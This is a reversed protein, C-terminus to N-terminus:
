ISPTRGGDVRIATGTIYAAAETSLFAALSAVEEPKAFRKAPISNLMANKEDDFSRQSKQAKEEILQQLRETQTAGPLVSNVTIGYQAVENSLTKSWSAVAGRVTNSVGLGNLPAKVSTSIINIIRGFGQAKMGPLLLNTLLINTFLHTNLGSQFEEETASTIPGPPPGGSNNILISFNQGNKIEENILESLKNKDQVDCVLTKAEAEKPLTEKASSLHRPNRSLLTIKCGLNALEQACALGIGRSSGCVLARKGVLSLNM